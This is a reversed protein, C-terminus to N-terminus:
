SHHLIFMKLKKEEELSYDIKQGSNRSYTMRGGSAGASDVLYLTFFLMHSRLVCCVIERGIAMGM